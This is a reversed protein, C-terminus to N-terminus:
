YIKGDPDFHPCWDEIVETHFGHIMAMQCFHLDESHNGAYGLTYGQCELVERKILSCGSGFVVDNFTKGDWRKLFAFERWARRLEERNVPELDRPIDKLKWHHSWIVPYPDGYVTGKACAVPRQRILASVVDSKCKMMKCLLDRPPPNDGGLVWFYRWPDVRKKFFDLRLAHLNRIVGMYSGWRDLDKDTLTTTIVRTTFPMNAAEVLQVLREHYMSFNPHGEILTCAFTLRLRDAPYDLNRLSALMYLISYEKSWGTPVGIYVNPKPKSPM